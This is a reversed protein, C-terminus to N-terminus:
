VGRFSLVTLVTRAVILLDLSVSQHKIYYLDYSLKVRSGEVGAGYGYNVQAWGTMGPKVTLRTNYFDISRRLEEVYRPQEPRPGILSMDNRLISWAQPLEDLHLRRLLRGVRTVRPDGHETWDASRDAEVRMTRLKTLSFPIGYKGLRAQRYFVPGRDELKIAVALIPVVVVSVALAITAVTVDLLRKGAAYVRSTESRMPLGMLWGHGLQDLLMRGTVEEYLDALSRVPVGRDYCDLLARFLERSVDDRVGLIIQDVQGSTVAQAIRERIDEASPDVSGVVQYFSGLQRQIGPWVKDLSPALVLLRGSLVAVGTVRRHAMRGAFVLIAALPIWLILTPRTIRYPFLLFVVLLAVSSVVLAQGVQSAAARMTQANRLEFAGVLRGSVLWVLAVVLSMRPLYFGVHKVLGTRLNFAVVYAAAVAVLDIAVLLLRRESLLLGRRRVLARVAAKDGPASNLELVGGIM